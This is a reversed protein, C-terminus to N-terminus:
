DTLYGILKEKIESIRYKSVPLIKGDKLEIEYRRIYQVFELNVLYARHCLM